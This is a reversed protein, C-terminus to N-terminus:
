RLTATLSEFQELCPNLLIGGQAPSRAPEPEDIPSINDFTALAFPTVFVRLGRRHTQQVLKYVLRPMTNSAIAGLGGAAVLLERRVAFAHHVISEVSRVSDLGAVKAAATLDLGASADRLGGTTTFLFGSHLIRSDENLSVGAAVGCDSRLAVGALEEFFGHSLTELSGNLFVFVDAPIEQISFLAPQASPESFIPRVFCENLEYISTGKPDCTAQVLAVQFDRDETRVFVAVGVSAPLAHKPPRQANLKPIRRHYLPKAIHESDSSSTWDRRFAALDGVCCSDPKFVPQSRRGQGDISDEDSFVCQCDGCLNFRRVLEILAFPHLEDGAQLSLSWEGDFWDPSEKIEIRKDRGSYAKLLDEPTSSYARYHQLCLQWNTYHQTLISRISLELLDPASDHAPVLISILPQYPLAALRDSIEERPWFLRPEWRQLWDAYSAAPAEVRTSELLTM